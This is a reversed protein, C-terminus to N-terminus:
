HRNFTKKKKKFSALLTQKTKIFSASNRSYVKM